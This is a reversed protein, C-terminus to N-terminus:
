RTVDVVTRGQHEGAMIADCVAHVENLGITEHAIRELQAPKLAGALERWIGDRRAAPCEVSNIGLLSVGRLIFPMVMTELKPSAALGIAAVNGFQVTQGLMDALVAGGLADIAGGYTERGLPKGGLDLADPAIVDTAGLERLAPGQTEVRRTVAVPAFGAQALMQIALMGLGGSAGTVLVPGLEPTQYNDRLRTLALAATFGATGLAMAEWPTLGDPLATVCGGPVRVYDALGGDRTESLQWGTVLVADGPAFREDESAEVVGAVDIGANLPRKRAIKGAGTIALADKYNLSSYRAAIMVDGGTLEARDMDTIRGRPGDDTDIIRLARM